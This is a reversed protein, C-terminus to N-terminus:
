LMRAVILSNLSQSSEELKAQLRELDSKEFTLRLRAAVASLLSGDKAKCKTLFERIAQCVANCQQAVERMRFDTKTETLKGGNAEIENAVAAISQVADDLNKLQETHGSTSSYIEHITKGYKLARDVMDLVNCALSLSSIPDMTITVASDPSPQGQAVVGCCFRSRCDRSEHGQWCSWLVSRVLLLRATAVRDIESYGTHKTEPLVRREPVMVAM